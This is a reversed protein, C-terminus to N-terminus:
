LLHDVIMVCLVKTSVTRMVSIFVVVVFVLRGGLSGGAGSGGFFLLVLVVRPWTKKKKKGRKRVSLELLIEKWSRDVYVTQYRTSSLLTTSVYFRLLLPPYIEAGPLRERWM